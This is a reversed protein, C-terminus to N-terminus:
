LVLAGIFRHAALYLVVGRLLIILVGRLTFTYPELIISIALALTLSSAVLRSALSSVSVYFNLRLSCILKGDAVALVLFHKYVVIIWFHSQSLMFDLYVVEIRDVRLLLFVGLHIIIITFM